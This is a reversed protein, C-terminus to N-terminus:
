MELLSPPPDAAARQSFKLCQERALCALTEFSELLERRLTDKVITNGIWAPIGIDPELKAHHIVRTTEGTARLEWSAHGSRFSSAAPV